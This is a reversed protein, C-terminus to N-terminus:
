WLETVLCEDADSVADRLSADTGSNRYRAASKDVGARMEVDINSSKRPPPLTKSIIGRTAVFTWAMVSINNAKKITQHNTISVM